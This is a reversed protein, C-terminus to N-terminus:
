SWSHKDVGKKHGTDLRGKMPVRGANYCVLLLAQEEDPIHNLKKNIDYYIHVCRAIHSQSRNQLHRTIIEDPCLSDQSTELPKGLGDVCIGPYEKFNPM